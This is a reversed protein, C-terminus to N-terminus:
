RSHTVTAIGALIYHWRAATTDVSYSTTIAVPNGSTIIVAPAATTITISHPRVIVHSYDTILIVMIAPRGDNMHLLHPQHHHSHLTHDMATSNASVCRRIDWTCTCLVHWVSARVFDRNSCTSQVMEGAGLAPLWALCRRRSLAFLFLWGGM